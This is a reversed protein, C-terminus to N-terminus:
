IGNAASRVAVKLGRNTGSVLAAEIIKEIKRSERQLDKVPQGTGEFVVTLNTNVHTDGGGMRQGKPMRIDVPIERGNGPLPVVAEPTGAEAIRAFTEQRKVGGVALNEIPKTIGGMAFPKVNPQGTGGPIIGGLAFGFLEKVAESNLMVTLQGVATAFAISATNLISAGTNLLTGVATLSTVIPTLAATVSTGVAAAIASADAAGTVADAAAGGIANAAASGAAAGAAEEALAEGTKEAINRGFAEALIEALNGTFTDVLADSLSQAFSTALSERFARLAESGSSVGSILDAIAGSLSARFGEMASTALQMGIEMSNGIKKAADEWANAFGETFSGADNQMLELQRNFEARLRIFDEPTTAKSIGTVALATAKAKDELEEFALGIQDINQFAEQGFIKQRSKEAFQAETRKIIEELQNFQDTNIKESMLLLLNRERIRANTRDLAVGQREITETLGRSAKEVETAFDDFGLIDNINQGELLKFNIRLSTKVRESVKLLEVMRNFETRRLVVSQKALAIREIESGSLSKLQGDMLRFIELSREFAKNIDEASEISKDDIIGQFISTPFNASSEIAAAMDRVLERTLEEVPLNKPFRIPLVIGADEALNELEGKVAFLNIRLATLDPDLTLPVSLLDDPLQVQKSFDGLNVVPKAELAKLLELYADKVGIMADAQPRLQAEIDRLGLSFTELDPPAAAIRTILQALENEAVKLGAGLVQLNQSAKLEDVGLGFMAMEDSRSLGRGESALRIGIRFGEIEGIVEAHRKRLEKLTNGALLEPFPALEEDTKFVTSLDLRRIAIVVQNIGSKVENFIGKILLPMQILIDAFISFVSLVNQFLVNMVGSVLKGFAKFVRSAKEIGGFKSVKAEIQDFIGGIAKAATEAAAELSGFAAGIRQVVADIGGRDQIVDDFARIFAEGVKRLQLRVANGFLQFRKFPSELLRALAEEDIQFDDSVFKFVEKFQEAQKGTLALIPILGRINGFLKALAGANNGIASEIEQLIAVFGRARINTVDIQLGFERMVELAEGSPKLLQNMAQRLQIVATNTEIGGQTLTAIAAAVEELSVGLTAAIPLVQGISGALEAITTKGKIVTRFLVNTIDAADEVPRQYAKIVSTLADVTEKVGALGVTALRTGEELVLMADAADTIDASIIQYFGKAVIEEPLGLAEAIGLVSREVQRLEESSGEFITGIEAIAIGFKQADSISKFVVAAGAVAGAMAIYRRAFSAVRAAAGAVAAGLRKFIKTVKSIKTNSGEAFTDLSKSVRSLVVDSDTKIGIFVIFKADAAGLPM